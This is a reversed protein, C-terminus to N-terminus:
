GTYLGFKQTSGIKELLILLIAIWGWFGTNYESWSAAISVAKDTRISTGPAFLV